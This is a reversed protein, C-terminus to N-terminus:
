YLFINQHYNFYGKLSKDSENVVCCKRPMHTNTKENEIVNIINLKYVYYFSM